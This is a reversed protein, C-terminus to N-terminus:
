EGGLCLPPPSPILPSCFQLPSARDGGRRHGPAISAPNIVRCLTADVLGTAPTQSGPEFSAPDCVRGVTEEKSGSWGWM